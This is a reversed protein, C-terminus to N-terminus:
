REHDEPAHASLPDLYRQRSHLKLSRPAPNKRSFAAGTAIALDRTGDGFANAIDRLSVHTARTWIRWRGREKIVTEVFLEDDVRPADPSATVYITVPAGVLRRPHSFEGLLVLREGAKDSMLIQSRAITIAYTEPHSM